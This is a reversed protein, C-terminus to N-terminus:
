NISLQVGITRLDVVSSEVHNTIKSMGVKGFCIKNM